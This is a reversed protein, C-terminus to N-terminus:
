GGAAVAKIEGLAMEVALEQVLMPAASYAPLRECAELAAAHSLVNAELRGAEISRLLDFVAAERGAANCANMAVIYNVIDAQLRWLGIQGLLLLASTWRLGRGCAASAPTLSAEGVDLANQSLAAFVDLSHVWHGLEECANIAANYPLSSSELGGRRLRQLLTLATVWEAGVVCCSSLAVVSTVINPALLCLRMNLLVAVALLWQGGARCADTVSTFSIVDAALGASPLATLRDAALEWHKSHVFVAALSNFTVTTAKLRSRCGAQLQGLADRWVAGANRKLRMATNMSVTDARLGYLEIEQLLSAAEADKGAKICGDAAVNLVDVHSQLHSQQMTSTLFAAAEWAQKEATTGVMAVYSIADLHLTRGELERLLAASRVWSLADKEVGVAINYSVLTPRMGMAEIGKPISGLVMSWQGAAGCADAAANLLIVDPQANGLSLRKLSAM